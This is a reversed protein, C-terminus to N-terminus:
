TRAPAPTHTLLARVAKPGGAPPTAIRNRADILVATPTGRVQYLASIEYTDQILMPGLGHERAWETNAALDGSGIPMVTLDEHQDQLWQNLDLAVTRCPACAPSLFVLLVPRGAATLSGLSHHRGDTGPLDFAPAITGVPLGQGAPRPSRSEALDRRLARLLAAQRVQVSALAVAIATGVAREAPLGAPGGPHVASGWLAFGALVAIATNRALTRGGIPAASAGFCSCEPRRGARLQVVVSTSFAALLGLAAGCAAVASAPWLVGVSVVSEVGPVLWAVASTFRAPVGFDRVAQRTAVRDTLKGWAAVAFVAAVVLRAAWVALDMVAVAGRDDDRHVRWRCAGASGVTM